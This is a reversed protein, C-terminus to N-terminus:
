ATVLEVVLQYRPQRSDPDPFDYMSQVSVRCVNPASGYDMCADRAKLAMESAEYRTVAWCQVAVTPMDRFLESAGGTREVTVFESPREEPVDAYAPVGLAESLHAILWAEVNM